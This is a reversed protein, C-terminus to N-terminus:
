ELDFTAMKRPFRNNIHTALFCSGENMHTHSLRCIPEHISRPFKNSFVSTLKQSQDFFLHPFFYRFLTYLDFYTKNAQIKITQTLFVNSM